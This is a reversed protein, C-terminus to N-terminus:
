KKNNQELLIRELVTWFTSRGVQLDSFGNDNHKKRHAVAM